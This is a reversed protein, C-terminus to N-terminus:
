MANSLSYARDWRIGTVSKSYISMINMAKVMTEHKRIIPMTNTMEKSVSGWIVALKNVCLKLFIIQNAIPNPYM